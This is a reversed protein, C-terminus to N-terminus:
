ARAPDQEAATMRALTDAPRRYLAYHVDRTAGDRHPLWGPGPAAPGARPSEVYLWADEALWPPLAAFAAQWLGSAFPPDMFVLDFSADPTKGLWRLADECAVVVRGSGGELRAATAGLSEALAPDRELLVVREAGRSAAELGLAGTGAFLDLVRAGALHPQLWNFLTERVRDSTPRLGAADGIPLKSGRWHGGIIRVSGAQPRAAAPAPRPRTPRSGPPVM